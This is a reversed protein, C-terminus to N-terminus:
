LEAEPESYGKRTASGPAGAPYLDPMSGGSSKGNPRNRWSVPVMSDPLGIEKRFAQQLHLDSTYPLDLFRIANRPIDSHRSTEGGEDEDWRDVTETTLEIEYVHTGLSEDFTRNLIRCPFGYDNIAWVFERRSKRRGKTNVIETHCRIQLAPPYPDHLAERETRILFQDFMQNWARGDLYRKSRDPEPSWQRVHDHWGKEFDDGYDLFLEEGEQIDKTAIYDIGLRASLSSEMEDPTKELWSASHSTSGDAAWQIKVNARTQNHNIYNVGAGYPCLLVSSDRHGMCYNLLVQKGIKHAKVWQNNKDKFFDFMEVAEQGYPLHHLPSGSIITGKPLDRKAFAGRGADPLTSQQPVIHDVCKGHEQLWELSRTANPQHTMGIDHELAVLVEDYTSPIANLTRSNWLNRLEVM